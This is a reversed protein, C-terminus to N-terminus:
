EFYEEPLNVSIAVATIIVDTSSQLQLVSKQYLMITSHLWTLPILEYDFVQQIILDPRVCLSYYRIINTWHSLDHLQHLRYVDCKIYM